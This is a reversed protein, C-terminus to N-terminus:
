RRNNLRQQLRGAPVPLAIEPAFELAGGKMLAETLAQRGATRGAQSQYVNRLASLDRGTLMEALRRSMPGSIQGLGLQDVVGGLVKAGGGIWNLPNGSAMQSLGQGIRSPDIIADELIEQREATQSGKLVDAYTKFMAKENKIMQMYRRFIDDDGFALRLKRELAPIDAIKKTADARTVLEGIRSKIAQAAGLRFLHREEQTMGELAEQIVRPHNKKAGTMFAEGQALADLNGMKTGHVQRARSYAKNPTTDLRDLEAVLERKLNGIIRADDAGEDGLKVFRGEVDDLGRKIYDLTQLKFGRGVGYGTREIEQGAEIAENLAETLEPDTKSVLAKQNQMKVVARRLAEKGAPTQLIRDVVPSEIQQNAKFASNYLASADKQARIGQRTGFFDGPVLEDMGKELRQIQGGVLEGSSGRIGEQRGELASQTIGKGRGPVAAARFALGRPNPGLDAIMAEPGLEDMRAAAQELTLGERQLAEAVKRAAAEKQRFPLRNWTQNVLWRGSGFLGAIAPPVAGGFAAGLGSATAIQGAREGLDGESEGAAQAGALAGGGAMGRGVAKPLTEAAGMWKGARAALPNAIAGVIGGAMATKPSQEEFEQRRRKPEIYAEEMSKDGGLLAESAMSGLGRMKDALGFTMTNQAAESFGMFKDYLSSEQPDPQKEEAISPIPKWEEGDFALREGTQPNKAIKAPKWAGSDDLYLAEDTEKNYAITM